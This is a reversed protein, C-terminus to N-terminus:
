ELEAIRKEATDVATQPDVAGTFARYIEEYLIGNKAGSNKVAPFPVSHEIMEMQVSYWPSGQKTYNQKCVPAGSYKGTIADIEPMRFYALLKEASEKKRSKSSVAFSWTVNWGTTLSSFGIDEPEMCKENMVSGMQGSWTITLPVNKQRIAEAIEENGFRETGSVAYRKMACYNALGEAAAEGKWCYDGKEDYIRAGTMRLFPLADTFIESAHAKMAIPYGYQFLEGALAMYEKPTIVKPMERGLMSKRYVVLHGDCFSPSLYLKDQYKMEKAVANLLPSSDYNLEHLYGKEVFDRLWLHGAVMFIDYDAKGQFIQLMVPYYDAWAVVDIQIPQDLKQEMEERLPLYGLVAPDNVALLKIKEEKM